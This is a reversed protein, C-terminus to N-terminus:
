REVSKLIKQLAIQLNKKNKQKQRHILLLTTYVNKLVKLNDEINEKVKDKNRKNNRKRKKEKCIQRIFQTKLTQLIIM